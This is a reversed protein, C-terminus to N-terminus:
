EKMEKAKKTKRERKLVDARVLPVDKENFAIVYDAGNFKCGGYHRAISLQSSQWHYIREPTENPPINM